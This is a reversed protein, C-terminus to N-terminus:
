ITNPGSGVSNGPTEDEDGASAGSSNFMVGARSAINLAFVFTDAFDRSTRRPVPKRAAPLDERLRSYILDLTLGSPEGPIGREIIDVLYKTFYTQPSPTDRDNEYWATSYDGTAALTYAGTGGALTAVDADSALTHPGHLAQGAFCCDLIVVKVRASSRR